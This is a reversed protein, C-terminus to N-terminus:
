AILGGLLRPGFYVMLGAVVIYLLAYPLAKKMIAGEQGQQGCASTAVAISQPSIIKGGTAGATNAAALWSPDAGTAHAVSAQLKGFLINSSTDSGTLFTGICGITPAFLPYFSGTAYALTVGLINIMGAFDMVSSMAILSCVTVITKRQQVIVRGLVRFLGGIKAGQILGGVLSGVFLLVGADILWSISVSRAVDAGGTVDFINFKFATTLLPSLMNRVPLLPSTAIILVLIIGYVSWAKLTDGFSYKVTAETQDKPHNRETIKAYLVIVLISAISGLIAPTEAGMYRAALYQTVLSIGGVLFSLLIHGPLKKASSDTLFVLIFPIIFMLPSLQFVVHSSLTQIDTIGAQEALVKVPTGVAGFGTAVSNAILSVVASFVPKFGLGILIAAPIAVATGFGAMGELLGGFGWTLLLVQVSKDSSLSSFQQKIIEMNGTHVLVNYSFIAMIIIILIPFFAKLFGYVVSLGADAFSFGYAILAILVAVVLTILASKDGSMKLFGMLIILLLVPTAALLIQWWEFLFPQAQLLIFAKM